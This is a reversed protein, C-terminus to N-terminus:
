LIIKVFLLVLFLLTKQKLKLLKIKRINNIKSFTLTNEIINQSLRVFIKLNTELLTNYLEIVFM